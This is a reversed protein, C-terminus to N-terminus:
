RTKRGGTKPGRNKDLISGTKGCFKGLKSFITTFSNKIQNVIKFASDVINNIIKLMRKDLLGQAQM